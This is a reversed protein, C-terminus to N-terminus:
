DITRPRRLATVGGAGVMLAVGWFLPAFTLAGTFFLSLVSGASGFATPLVTQTANIMTMRLGVAEGVRGPPTVRHLLSMIAPQGVGLGLGLLFSLGVLGYHSGVLPYVLYVLAAIVQVVGIMQWETMRHVFLPMALRVVFTAASFSGLVVGIQSASLGIKSGHIPVLFMHVDWASSVLTVAVYLARLQPTSLLERLGGRSPLGEPSVPTLGEFRWHWKVLAFALAGLVASAVFAAAFSASAGASDILVGAIIPGSFGSISFGVALMGFNRMRDPGDGLEGTLKQVGMHFMLFGFGVCVSNIFLAPLSMWVAPLVFGLGLLGAGALMPRRTGSRDIWRGVPVSLLMPLLAYLSLLLGVVVTPAQMQIAALSGTMRSATFATHSIVTLFVLSFLSPADRGRMLM